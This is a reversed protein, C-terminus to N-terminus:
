SEISRSNSPMPKENYNKEGEASKGL